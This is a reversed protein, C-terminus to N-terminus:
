CLQKFNVDQQSIWGKLKALRCSHKIFLSQTSPSEGPVIGYDDTYDEMGSVLFQWVLAGAGSRNRKASKYVISLISEYM